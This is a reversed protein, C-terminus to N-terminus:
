TKQERSQQLNQWTIQNVCPIVFGVFLWQLNAIFMPLKLSILNSSIFIIGSAVGFCIITRTIKELKSQLKNARCFIKESAIFGLLAYYAVWIHNNIQKLVFYTYAILITSFSIIIWSSMRKEKTIALYYAICLLLAFFVAALVDYYNHYQFHVLSLGIGIVLIAILIRIAHMNSKFALWGFFTTALQMHGSPFAFGEKGLLPSLPVQFTVKLASNFIMSVFMLCTAHYFTDRNIWIYGLIILPCIFQEHTLFLLMNAINDTM